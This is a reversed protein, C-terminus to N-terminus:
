IAFAERAFNKPMDAAQEAAAAAKEALHAHISAIQRDAEDRTFVSELVLWEIKNIELRPDNALSLPGYVEALRDRRRLEIEAIIGSAHKDEVIWLPDQAAHFIRFHDKRFTFLALLVLAPLLWLALVPTAGSQFTQAAIAALGTALLALGYHFQSWDHRSTFKRAPQIQFYDATIEHVSAGYRFAYSLETEGFSFAAKARSRKQVKQVIVEGKRSVGSCFKSVALSNALNLLSYVDVGSAQRM